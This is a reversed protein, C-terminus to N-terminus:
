YRRIQVESVSRFATEIEKALDLNERNEVHADIQTVGVIEWSGRRNRSAYLETNIWNGPVALGARVTARNHDLKIDHIRIEIQGSDSLGGSGAKQRSIGELFSIACNRVPAYYVYDEVALYLLLGGALM